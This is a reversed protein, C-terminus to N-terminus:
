ITCKKEGFREREFHNSLESKQRENFLFRRECIDFPFPTAYYFSSM